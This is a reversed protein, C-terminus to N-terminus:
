HADPSEGSLKRGMECFQERLAMRRDTRAKRTAPYEERSISSITNGLDDAYAMAIEVFARSQGLDKRLNEIIGELRAQEAQAQDLLEGWTVSPIDGAKKVGGIADKIRQNDGNFHRCWRVLENIGWAICDRTSESLGNRTDGSRIDAEVVRIIESVVNRGFGSICQTFGSTGAYAFSDDDINSM